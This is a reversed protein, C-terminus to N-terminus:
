IEVLDQNEIKIVRDFYSYLEPRHTIAVITLEPHDITLNSIITQEIKPDLASTAEDLFILNTGKYLARAIGVRQKQGGSIHNGRDGLGRLLGGKWSNVTELLDCLILIQKLKNEDYYENKDLFTVNEIFSTDLLFVDQPVYSISKYWNAISFENLKKGNIKIIGDNPELFGLMLDLFCSKGAGSPGVIAIKEGKKIKLNVNKLTYDKASKYKFSINILELESFNNFNSQNLINFVQKKPQKLLNYSEVIELKTAIM